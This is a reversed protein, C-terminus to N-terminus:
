ANLLEELNLKVPPHEHGWIGDRCRYGELGVLDGDPDLLAQDRLWRVLEHKVTFTAAIKTLGIIDHVVYIYTSRAM